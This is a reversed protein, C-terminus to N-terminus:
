GRFTCAQIWVPHPPRRTATEIRPPGGGLTPFRSGLIFLGENVWSLHDAPLPVRLGGSFHKVEEQPSRPTVNCWKERKKRMCFSAYFIAGRKKKKKRLNQRNGAAGVDIKVSKPDLVPARLTKKRPKKRVTTKSRKKANKEFFFARLRFIFFYTEYRLNSTRNLEKLVPISQEDFSINVAPQRKNFKM